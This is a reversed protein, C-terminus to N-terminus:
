PTKPKLKLSSMAKVPKELTTASEALAPMQAELAAALKQEIDPWDYERVKDLPNKERGYPIRCFADANADLLVEAIEKNGRQIAHTLATEGSATVHSVPAGRRILEKALETNGWFAALSLLSEKNVVISDAPLGEDLMAILRHMPAPYQTRIAECFRLSLWYKEHKDDIVIAM